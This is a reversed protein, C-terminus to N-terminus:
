KELHPDLDLLNAFDFTLSTSLYEIVQINYKSYM